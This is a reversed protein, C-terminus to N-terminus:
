KRLSKFFTLDMAKIRRKLFSGKKEKLLKGIGNPWNLAKQKVQGSTPMPISSDISKTRQKTPLKTSSNKPLFEKLPEPPLGSNLIKQLMLIKM